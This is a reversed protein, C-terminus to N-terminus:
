GVGRVIRRLAESWTVGDRAARETVIADTEGDVYLQVRRGGALVKPRGAPNNSPRRTPQCHGCELAGWSVADPPLPAGCNLCTPTTYLTM